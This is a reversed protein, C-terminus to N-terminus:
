QADGVEARDPNALAAGIPCRKCAAWHKVKAPDSQPVGRTRWSACVAAPMDAGTHPCRVTALRELVRRALRTTKAPYRGALALSVTTHSMGIHAATKVVGVREVELRLIELWPAALARAVTPAASM